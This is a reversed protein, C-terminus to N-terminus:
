QILTWDKLRYHQRSANKTKAVCRLILIDGVAAGTCFLSQHSKLKLQSSVIDGFLDGKSRLVHARGFIRASCGYQQAVSYAPRVDGLPILEYKM